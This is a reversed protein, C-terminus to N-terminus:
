RPDETQPTRPLKIGVLVELATAWNKPIPQNSQICDKWTYNVIQETKNDRKIKSATIRDLNLRHNIAHMWRTTTNQNTHAKSQIVRECRLIWILYASESILIRLLRSAGRLKQSNRQQQEDNENENNNNRISIAGCGMILGITIQPWPGLSEPWLQQALSWITTRTQNDCTTLIHEMSEIEDHCTPCKSRQEYHPINTWYNGIRHTNHISKYLFIQIKKQLDKSTCSQWIAQDTELTKTINELAYRTQDLNM